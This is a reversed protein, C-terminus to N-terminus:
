RAMGKLKAEIKDFVVDAPVTEGNSRSEEISRKIDSVRLQHLQTQEELLRLGARVIESANNFRGEELQADIFHEFHEGLTFSRAM